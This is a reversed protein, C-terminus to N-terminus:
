YRQQAVILVPWGLVNSFSSIRIFSMVSKVTKAIFSCRTHLLKIFSRCCWRDIDFGSNGKWRWWGFGKDVGSDQNTIAWIKAVWTYIPKANGEKYWIVLQVKDPSGNGMNSTPILECPMSADLGVATQVESLPGPISNSLIFPFM